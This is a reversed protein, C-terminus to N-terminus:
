EWSGGTATDDHIDLWGGTQHTFYDEAGGYYGVYTDFGCGTPLTRPSM